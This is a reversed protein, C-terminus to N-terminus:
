GQFKIEKSLIKQKMGLKTESKLKVILETTEDKLQLLQKEFGEKLTMLLFM